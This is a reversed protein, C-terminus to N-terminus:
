CGNAPAEAIATERVSSMAPAIAPCFAAHYSGTMTVLCFSASNLSLSCIQASLASDLGNKPLAYSHLTPKRPVAPDSGTRNPRDVSPPSM